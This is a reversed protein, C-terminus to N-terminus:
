FLSGKLCDLYDRILRPFALQESEKETVLNFGDVKPLPSSLEVTFFVAKIRQHSLQQQLCGSKEIIRYATKKLGMEKELFRSAETTSAEAATELLPLEYLQQWIDKATRQRIVLRKGSRLLFYNFHRTRMTLKKGKVPLQDILNRQRAVCIKNFVCTGCLPSQPKCVTAGFDMIAQNYQGAQQADLLQQALDAFYKKGETSDSPLNIGFVRSLVRYVNGDVVAYPLNFGFSAIAAATYPGVGKLQRIDQYKDPFNGKLEESIFRATALLNRCRSYYGLGEWLKMVVDDQAAALDTIRPFRNIFREYYALGQEVRTQQLIIESLWIRYADKEGKWPMQRTNHRQHWSMLTATFLKKASVPPSKQHMNQYRLAM